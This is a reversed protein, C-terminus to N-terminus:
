ENEKLRGIFVKGANPVLDENSTSGSKKAPATDVPESVADDITTKPAM